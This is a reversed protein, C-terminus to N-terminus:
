LGEESPRFRVQSLGPLPIETRTFGIVQGNALRNREARELEHNLTSALNTLKGEMHDQRVSVREICDHEEGEKSKVTKCKTCRLFKFECVQVHEAFDVQLMRAECGYNSCQVMAYDCEQQHVVFQDYTVNEVCGKEANECRLTIANLQKLLLPHPDVLRFTTSSCSPCCVVYDASILQDIYREICKSCFGKRCENCERPNLMINECLLCDLLAAQEDGNETLGSTVQDKTLFAKRKWLLPTKSKSAMAPCGKLLDPTEEAGENIIGKTGVAKQAPAFYKDKTAKESM